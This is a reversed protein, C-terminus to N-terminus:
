KNAVTLLIDVHCPKEISCFCSLNKGKLEEIKPPLPLFEFDLMRGKIWLEYLEVIDEVSHGSEDSFVIWPDLLKRNVSFCLITGDPDLKFPNGYKTPRGVYITDEPTKFGKTRKRQVRIPTFELNVGEVKARKRNLSSM